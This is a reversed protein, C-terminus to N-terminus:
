GELVAVWLNDIEEDQSALAATHATVVEEETPIREIETKVSQIMRYFKGGEYTDGIEVPYQTVEVAVADQGYTNHAVVNCNYYNGVVVNQVAGNNILAYVNHAIAM